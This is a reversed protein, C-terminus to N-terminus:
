EDTDDDDIFQEHQDFSGSDNIWRSEDNFANLFGIMVAAIVIFLSRKIWKFFRKIGGLFLFHKNRSKDM